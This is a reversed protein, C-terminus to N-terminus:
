GSITLIYVVSEVNYERRDFYVGQSPLISGATAVALTYAMYSQM